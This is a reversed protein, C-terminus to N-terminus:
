GDDRPPGIETRTCCANCTVRIASVPANPRVVTRSTPPETYSIVLFQRLDVPEKGTERQLDRTGRCVDAPPRVSPRRALLTSLPCYRGGTGKNRVESAICAYCFPLLVRQFAKNEGM